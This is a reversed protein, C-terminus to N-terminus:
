DVRPWPTTKLDREIEAQLEAVPRGAESALATTLLDYSESGPGILWALRPDAQLRGVVHRVAGMAVNAQATMAALDSTAQAFDTICRSM